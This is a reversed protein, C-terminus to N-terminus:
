FAFCFYVLPQHSPEPTLLASQEELPGSNLDWCGCPPEYGDTVFDSAEEPTDLVAVTYKCIIFLYINFFYFLRFLWATTACVKLGLVQSASVPPNRLELGAHDVFHTGPCGPGQRLFFFFFWWWCFSFLLLFGANNVISTFDKLFHRRLTQTGSTALITERAPLYVQNHILTTSTKFAYLIM